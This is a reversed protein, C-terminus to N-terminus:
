FSYANNWKRNLGVVIDDSLIPTLRDINDM